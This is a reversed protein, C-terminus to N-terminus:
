KKRTEVDIETMNGEDGNTSLESDIEQYVSNNSKFEPVMHKMEAVIDHSPGKHLGGRLHELHQCVDNYDYTRVRAIM